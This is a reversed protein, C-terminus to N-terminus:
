DNDNKPWYCKDAVSLYPIGPEYRFCFEIPQIRGLEDSYRGVGYHFLLYGGDEIGKAGEATLTLGRLMATMDVGPALAMPFDTHTLEGPEVPGKFSKRTVVAAGDLSLSTIAMSGRNKFVVKVDLSKGAAVDAAAREITLKPHEPFKRDKRDKPWYREPCIRMCTPASPEYMYCYDLPYINGKDDEYDGECFHFFLLTKNQLKKIRDATLAYPSIAATTKEEPGVGIDPQTDVSGPIPIYELPGSFSGPLFLHNANGLRINRATANGRNKIGLVVTEGQGVKLPLMRSGSIYLEPRAMERADLFYKKALLLIMVVVAISLSVASWAMGKGGEVRPKGAFFFFSSISVAIWVWTVVQYVSDFFFAIIKRLM